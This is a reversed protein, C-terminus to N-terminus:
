LWGQFPGLVADKISEVFQAPVWYLFYNSKDTPGLQLAVIHYEEHGKISESTVNKISGLNVKQTRENTGIWLQDVEPKFTLRTKAGRSNLLARLGGPPLPLRKGRIGPEADDPKGKDVIKKHETLESLAIRPKSVTADVVPTAAAATAIKVIDEVKSAMLMIKVGDKVGAQALTQDDKLVGEELTIGKFLLKQM